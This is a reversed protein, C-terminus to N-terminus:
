EDRHISIIEGSNFQELLDKKAYAVPIALYSTDADAFSMKLASKSVYQNWNVYVTDKGVEVVKFSHYEKDGKSKAIYIDGQIPNEIYDTKKAEVKNSGIILFGILLVLLVLGSYYTIPFKVENKLVEYSSDIDMTTDKVEGSYGCHSCSVVGTKGTPFFPIWFLHFYNTAVGLTVTNVESCHPCKHNVQWAKKLKSKRGYIFFM